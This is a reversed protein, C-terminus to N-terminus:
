GLLEEVIEICKRTQRARRSEVAKKLSTWALLFVPLVFVGVVLSMGATPVALVGALLVGLAGAACGLAMPFKVVAPDASEASVTCGGTGDEFVRVRVNSTTAVPMSYLTDIVLHLLGVFCGLRVRSVLLYENGRMAGSAFHEWQGAAEDSSTKSLGLKRGLASKGFKDRGNLRQALLKAEKKRQGLGAADMAPQLSETMRTHIETRSAGLAQFSAGDTTEVPETKDV